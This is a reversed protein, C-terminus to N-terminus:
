SSRRRPAPTTLQQRRQRLLDDELKGLLKNLTEVERASFDSIVQEYVRAAVRRIARLAQRGKPTIRVETVRQDTLRPEHRVLGEDAMRQVLKLLTPLKMVTHEALEGMASPSHESLLMLVRSRPQDMGRPKLEHDLCQAYLGSIRTVRYFPYQALRFEPHVPSTRSGAPPATKKKPARTAM